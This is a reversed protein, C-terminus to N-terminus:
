PNLDKQLAQYLLDAAIQNAEIGPHTDFRNVTIESVSKGRLPDTMDVVQVGQGRFFDSVRKTAPTSAAVEGLNPWVLVILRANHNHAWAVMEYLRPVQQNWLTDDMHAGILDYAFNSTRTSSTFQLINYYLYNPLFFDRIFDALLPNQPFAFNNDPNLSPDAMLYDIDNLYYSLIVINPRLPYQDLEYLEVDSDWGSEAIVNVDYGAGLKKELIQPFTDDINNIGHGMAFSDGVVAIRTLPHAPDDPTPEYDRYGYSNPNAWGYNEYWWYNMATFGYGDTTIYFIRLYAEGAFFIIVLTTLTIMIGTLKSAGLKTGAERLGQEHVEYGVLFVFLWLAWLVYAFEIPRLARGNTPQYPVLWFSIAVCVYVLVILWFLFPAARLRRLAARLRGRLPSPILASATVIWAFVLIPVLWGESPQPQAQTGAFTAGILLLLWISNFWRIKM